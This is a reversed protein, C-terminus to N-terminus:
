PKHPLQQAAKTTVKDSRAGASQSLPQLLRCKPNTNNNTYCHVSKRPIGQVATTHIVGSYARSPSYSLTQGVSHNIIPNHRSFLILPIYLALAGTAKGMFHPLPPAPRLHALLGFNHQLPPYTLPSHDVPDFHAFALRTTFSKVIVVLGRARFNFLNCGSAFIHGLQM